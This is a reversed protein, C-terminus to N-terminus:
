VINIAAGKPHGAPDLPNIIDAVYMKLKERDVADSQIRGASEEKHKSDGSTYDQETETM